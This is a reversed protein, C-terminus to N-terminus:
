WPVVEAGTIWMELDLAGTIALVLAVKFEVPALAAEDKGLGTSSYFRLAMVADLALLASALFKVVGISLAIDSVTVTKPAEAYVVAMLTSVLTTALASPISPTLKAVATCLLSCFTLLADLIEILHV